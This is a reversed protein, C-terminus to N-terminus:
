RRTVTVVARAGHRRGHALGVAIGEGRSRMSTVKQRTRIDADLHEAYRLLRAAVEDRHPYRGPDGGSPLGPPPSYRAPPFLTLIAPGRGRRGSRLRWSWPTPGERLLSHAAAPGTQGGIAAVDVHEMLGLGFRHIDINVGISVPAM